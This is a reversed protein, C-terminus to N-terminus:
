PYFIYVDQYFQENDTHRSFERILHVPLYKIDKLRFDFSSNNDNCSELRYVEDYSCTPVEVNSPSIVDQNRKFKKQIM